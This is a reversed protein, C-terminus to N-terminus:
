TIQGHVPTLREVATPVWIPHNSMRFLVFAHSMGTSKPPDAYVAVADSVVESAESNDLEAHPFQPIPDSPKADVCEMAPLIDM